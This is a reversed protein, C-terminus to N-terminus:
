VGYTTAGRHAQLRSSLRKLAQDRMAHVDRAAAPAAASAAAAAAVADKAMPQRPPRAAPPLRAAGQERALKDSSLCPSRGQEGREPPTTRRGAAGAAPVADSSGGPGEVAQFRPPQTPAESASTASAVEASVAPAPTYSLMQDEWKCGQQQQLIGRSTGVDGGESGWHREGLDESGVSGRLDEPRLFLWSDDDGSGLGAGAGIGHEGEPQRQQRKRQLEQLWGSVKHLTSHRRM